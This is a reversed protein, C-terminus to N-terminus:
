DVPMWPQGDDIEGPVIPLYPPSPLGDESCVVAVRGLDTHVVYSRDAVRFTFRLGPTVVQAYDQGPQPCGLSADPWEVTEVQVAQVSEEPVGLWAALATRAFSKPDAPSVAPTSSVPAIVQSAPAELEALPAANTVVPPPAADVTCAAALPALLFLVIASLRFNTM